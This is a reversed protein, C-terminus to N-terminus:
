GLVRLAKNMAGLFTIFIALTLNPLFFAQPILRGFDKFSGTDECNGLVYDNFL